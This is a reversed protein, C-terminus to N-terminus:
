TRERKRFPNKLLSETERPINNGGGERRAKRGRESYPVNRKDHAVLKVVEQFVKVRASAYDLPSCYESFVERPRLFKRRTRRSQRAGRTVIAPGETRCESQAGRSALPPKVAQALKASRRTIVDEFLHVDHEFVGRVFMFILRAFFDASIKQPVGKPSRRTTGAKFSHIYFCIKLETKSHTFTPHLNM